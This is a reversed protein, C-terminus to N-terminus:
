FWRGIAILHCAYIIETSVALTNKIHFRWGVEAGGSAASDDILPIGTRAGAGYTAYGSFSKAPVDAFDAPFPYLASGGTAGPAIVFGPVNFNRKVCILMGSAYKFYEGNANSGSEMLAGTPVGSAQSVTGLIGATAATGLGLGSRAEAKTKGGTGGQAISLATTLGSLSTIDSNAGRAAAGINKKLTETDTASGFMALVAGWQQIVQKVQDTLDKPYGNIPVIAYSGEAVTPGKYPPYITLATSSNINILEYPLGDPGNFQDGVRASGFSTGTGTVVTQGTTIAVTGERSWPM